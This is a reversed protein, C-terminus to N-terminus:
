VFYEERFVEGDLERSFVQKYVWKVDEILKNKAKESTLSAYIDSVPYTKITKGARVSKLISYSMKDIKGDEIYIDATKDLYQSPDVVRANKIILSM